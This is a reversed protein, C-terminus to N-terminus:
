AKRKRKKLLFAGCLGFTILTAPEPIPLAVTFSNSNGEYQGQSFQLAETEFTIPLQIFSNRTDLDLTFTYNGATGDWTFVYRAMIDDVALAQAVGNDPGDGFQYSNSSPNLATAGASNEFVWYAAEVDVEESATSDFTLTGPGSVGVTAQFSQASVGAPNSIVFDFSFLGGPSGPMVINSPTIQVGWAPMSVTVCSLVFVLIAKKMARM